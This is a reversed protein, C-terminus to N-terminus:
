EEGGLNEAIWKEIISGAFTSASKGKLKAENSLIMYNEENLYVTVSPLYRVWYYQIVLFFKFSQKIPLSIFDQIGM